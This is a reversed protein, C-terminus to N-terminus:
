EILSFSSHNSSLTTCRKPANLGKFERIQWEPQIKRITNRERTPLKLLLGGGVWGGARKLAHNFRLLLGPEKGEKEAPLSYWGMINNEQM